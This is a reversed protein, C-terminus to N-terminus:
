RQAYGTLEYREDQIVQRQRIPPPNWASHLAASRRKFPNDRRADPEESAQGDV